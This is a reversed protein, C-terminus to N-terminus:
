DKERIHRDIAVNLPTIDLHHYIIENTIKGVDVMEDCNRAHLKRKLLRDRDTNCSIFFGCPCELSKMTGGKIYKQYPM